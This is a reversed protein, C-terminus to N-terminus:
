VNEEEEEEEHIEWLYSDYDDYVLVMPFSQEQDEVPGPHGIEVCHKEKIYLSFPETAHEQFDKMDMEYDSEYSDYMPQSSGLDDFYSAHIQQEKDLYV